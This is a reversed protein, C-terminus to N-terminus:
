NGYETQDEYVRDAKQSRILGVLMSVIERLIEKGEGTLTEDTKGRRVCVDLAAACELASGRAIDFFRCRDKSTFKGNGEAINLVISTSARDMQDRVALGKLVNASLADTFEVFDLARQYVKLKEHDFIEPM